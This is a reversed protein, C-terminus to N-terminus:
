EGEIEDIAQEFIDKIAKIHKLLLEDNHSLEYIEAGIEGPM